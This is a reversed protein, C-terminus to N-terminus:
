ARPPADRAPVITASDLAIDFVIVAEGRDLQVRVQSVRDHLSTEFEGYDTGDRTVFEEVLRRLTGPELARHDVVVPGDGTRQDNAM